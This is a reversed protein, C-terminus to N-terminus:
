RNDRYFKYVIGMMDLFVIPVTVSQKYHKYPYLDLMDLQDVFFVIFDPSLVIDEVEDLGFTIPAVAEGEENSGDALM